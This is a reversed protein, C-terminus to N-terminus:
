PTLYFYIVCFHLFTGLLVFSHWVAHHHKFGRWVYFIAGLTYFAGGSILLITGRQPLFDITPKLILVFMWGLGVYLLTSFLKFKRVFFVKFVTGGIAIGWIIGFLTWRVATEAIVFLFPTYTGAIFFYISSHDLIEFVSKAKGVPLAHLLTSSVYLLIMTVGYISYSVIHWANGYVSAKIVLVTIAFISFVLGIGHSLANVLEEKKSFTHVNM